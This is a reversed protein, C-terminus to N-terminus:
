KSLHPHKTKWVLCHTPLAIIEVDIFFRGLLSGLDSESYERVHFRSGSFTRFRTPNHPTSGIFIGDPKLAKVIKVCIKECDEQPIHEIFESAVVVDFTGPFDEALDTLNKTFYRVNDRPCRFDNVKDVGVVSEVRSCGAIQVTLYGHGCGVDLVNGYVNSLIYLGYAKTYEDGGSHENAHPREDGANKFYAADIAISIRGVLPIRKAQWRVERVWNRLKPHKYLVKKIKSIM